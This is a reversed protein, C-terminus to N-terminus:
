TTAFSYWGGGMPRLHVLQTAEIFESGYAPPNHGPRVWVYGWLSDLFGDYVFAVYDDTVEFEIFHLKILRKRFTTYVTPDIEYRDLVAEVPMVPRGLGRLPDVGRPHYTVLEGNLETYYRQGDSMSRIRDYSMIEAVFANTADRRSWWFVADGARAAHPLLIIAVAGCHAAALAAFAKAGTPRFATWALVLTAGALGGAAGLLALALSTFDGIFKSLLDAILLLALGGYFLSFAVRQM